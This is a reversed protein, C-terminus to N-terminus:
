GRQSTNALFKKSFLYQSMSEKELTFHPQGYKLFYLYFIIVGEKALKRQLKTHPVAITTIGAVM